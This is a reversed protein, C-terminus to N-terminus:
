KTASGIPLISADIDYNISVGSFTAAVTVPTNALPTIPLTTLAPSGTSSLGAVTLGMPFFTATSSVGDTNTYTCTITLTGASITRISASIAIMLTSSASPTYTNVSSVTGTQNRWSGTSTASPPIGLSSTSTLTYGGLANGVLINGFTPASTLGTGGYLVGVSTTASVVGNNAQLPGNLSAITLGGNLTQAGTFINATYTKPITSSGNIYSNVNTDGYNNQTLCNGKIAYCGANLNIGAAGSQWTSTGTTSINITNAGTNGLSLATGPTTSGMGVKQTSSSITMAPPTLNQPAYGIDVNNTIFNLGNRDALIAQTNAWSGAQYSAFNIGGIIGNTGGNLAFDTPGPSTLTGTSNAINFLPFANATTGSILMTMDSDTGGTDTVMLREAGDVSSAAPGFTTLGATWVNSKSLALSSVVSGTTPSITLTGDSNSVSSVAGSGVCSGNDAYCGKTINLGGALTSTATSTGNLAGNLIVSGTGTSGTGPSLTINGGRGSTNNEAGIQFNHGFGGFAPGAEYGNVIISSTSNTQDRSALTIYPTVASGVYIEGINGTVVGNKGIGLETTNDDTQISAYGTGSNGDSLILQSESGSGKFCNESKTGQGASFTMQGNLTMQIDNFDSCLNQENTLVTGYVPLWNSLGDDFPYANGHNTNSYITGALITDHLTSTAAPSTSTANITGVNLVSGTNQNLNIGAQTLFNTGSGGSIGLSSTAVWQIYNDPYSGFVQPVYGTTGTSTSIQIPKFPAQQASVAGPM